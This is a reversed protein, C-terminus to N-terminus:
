ETVQHISALFCFTSKQPHKMFILFREAQNLMSEALSNLTTELLVCVQCRFYPM